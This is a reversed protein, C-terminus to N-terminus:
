HEVFHMNHEQERVIVFAALSNHHRCYYEHSVGDEM